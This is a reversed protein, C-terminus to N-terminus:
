RPQKPSRLQQLAREVQVLILADVLDDAAPAVDDNGGAGADVADGVEAAGIQRQATLSRREHRRKVFPQKM